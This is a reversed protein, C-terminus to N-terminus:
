MRMRSDAEDRNGLEKKAASIDKKTLKLWIHILSLGYAPFLPLLGYILGCVVAIPRYRDRICM